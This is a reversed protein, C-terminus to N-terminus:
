ESQSLLDKEIFYMDVLGKNHVEKKGRYSFSFRHKVAECTAGSVNIRGPEGLEELRAALNVADGWIDYAFKNKGVVGAVVPGTHVGIRMERLVVNPKERNRRELWAAMELAASVADVAHTDNPVPLGGACMYADGITKIKELRHKDSIEDFALFCEDLEALLQEPSLQSSLRTFNLFDTFLVTAAEYFRPNAYGHTKLEEAIEEPLINVLLRDSKQREEEIQSKQAQIKRNQVELRRSTRRAFLWGAGLLALIVIGLAGLGNAFKRFAEQQRLQLDTIDKDRRLLELEQARSSSDAMRQARDIAEQRRLEAIVRNSKEADLQQASLRLASQAQLAQLSQERLTAQDVETQKQLLRVEDEKRQAELALKDNLLKLREQEYRSQQLELDKFNQRALLYKIQGERESLLSRQQALRQQKVQDELRSSDLLTLYKKYYDFAKEFDYLEHYIDAATKYANTLVVPQKTARAYQISLDNHRLANYLDNNSFYVGAILHELNAQAVRDDRDALINRSRLLYEIGQKTSGTNHLAVGINAYLVEPYECPIYSCQLEAKRFYTLAKGYDNLVAYQKGLNNYLLGREVPSGFREVIDEIYLYYFLGKGPNDNDNYANALKQYIQVQRPYDGSAKYYGILKKYYVEASDFHMDLLAADGAKEMATYDEPQADLVDSYYRHANAYLKEKFFLDGLARYIVPLMPKNNGSRVKDEAELYHQMADETRGNRACVEGLLISARVIGGDYRLSRAISLSQNALSEIENDKPAHRAKDLLNDVQVTSHELEDTPQARAATAWLIIILTLLLYRILPPM